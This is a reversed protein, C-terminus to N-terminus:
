YGAVDDGLGDNTIPPNISRIGGRRGPMFIINGIQNRKFLQLNTIFLFLSTM